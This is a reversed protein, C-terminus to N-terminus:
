DEDYEEAQDDDAADDEDESDGSLVDSIDKLKSVVDERTLEPDLADDVLESAQDIVDQLDAKTTANAAMHTPRRTGPNSLIQAGRHEAYEEPTMSDFDDAAADNGIRRLFAVAQQRKTEAESRRLYKVV